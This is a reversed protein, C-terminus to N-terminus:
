AVGVEMRLNCKDIHERQAESAQHGLKGSHGGSGRRQM